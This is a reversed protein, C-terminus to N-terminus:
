FSVTLKLYTFTKGAHEYETLYGLGEFHNCVKKAVANIIDSWERDTLVYRYEERATHTDLIVQASLESALVAKVIESEVRGVAFEFSEEILESQRNLAKEILTEKIRFVAERAEKATWGSM